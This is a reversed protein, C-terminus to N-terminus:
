EVNKSSGSAGLPTSAASFRRSRKDYEVSVLSEGIVDAHHETMSLATLLLRFSMRERYGLGWRQIAGLSEGRVVVSGYESSDALTFVSIENGGRIARADSEYDHQHDVLLDSEIIRARLRLKFPGGTNKFSAVVQAGGLVELSLIPAGPKLEELTRAALRVDAQKQELILRATSTSATPAQEGVYVNVVGGTASATGGAAVQQSSSNAQHSTSSGVQRARGHPGFLGWFSIAIGIATAIAGATRYAPGFVLVSVGLAVLGVGVGLITWSRDSM